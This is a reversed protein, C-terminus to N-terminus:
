ERRERDPRERENRNYSPRKRRSKMLKRKRKHQIERVHQHKTQSPKEFFERQRFEKITGEKELQKKFRKLASDLNEGETLIVYAM